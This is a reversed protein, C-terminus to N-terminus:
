DYFCGTDLWYDNTYITHLRLAINDRSIPKGAGVLGQASNVTIAFPDAASRGFRIIAQPMGGRGDRLLKETNAAWCVEYLANSYAWEDDVNRFGIWLNGAFMVEGSILDAQDPRFLVNRKPMLKQSPEVIGLIATNPCQGMPRLVFHGGIQTAILHVAAGVVVCSKADSIVGNRAFPFWSGEVPYGQLSTIRAPPLPCYEILIKMLEPLGAPRGAVIMEDCDFQSIIDCFTYLTRGFVKRVVENFQAPNLTLEVTSVDVSKGTSRGLYENFRGLLNAPYQAESLIKRLTLRVEPLRNEAQGWFYRALPVWVKNVMQRRISEWEPDVAGVTQSFLSQWEKRAIGMQQAMDPFIVDTIVARVIDDGGLSIGDRFLPKQEVCTFGIAGPVVAFESVVLDTSGGGIDLSALRVTGRGGRERGVTAFYADADGKLSELEGYVYCIQVATAEDCDVRVAPKPQIPPVPLKNGEGRRFAIPDRYSDYWVEVARRAGEEIEKRELTTMGSPHVLVLTRLVRRRSESGVVPMRQRHGVSNIQSFAQEMIETMFFILGTKRSYRPNSPNPLLTVQPERYPSAPDIYRLLAGEIPTASGDSGDPVFCWDAPRPRDDWLYRKPSSMGTLAGTLGQSGGAELAEDGLRILSVGQFRAEDATGGAKTGTPRVFQMHSEFPGTTKRSPLEHSRMELSAFLPRQGGPTEVVIGCTRCNGLDLVLHADITETETGLSVKIKPLKKALFRVLARLKAAAALQTEEPALNETDSPRWVDWREHLWAEWADRVTKKVEPHGWFSEMEPNVAFTYGIERDRVLGLNDDRKGSRSHTDCALVLDYVQGGSKINPELFARVWVPNTTHYPIPIWRRSFVSLADSASFSLYGESDYAEDETADLFGGEKANEPLASVKGHQLLRFRNPKNAEADKFDLPPDLDVYQIGTEVFLQIM